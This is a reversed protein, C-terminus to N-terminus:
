EWVFPEKLHYKKLIQKELAFYANMAELQAPIGKQWYSNGYYLFMAWYYPLEHGFLGVEATNVAPATLLSRNV